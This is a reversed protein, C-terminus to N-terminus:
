SDDLSKSKCNIQIGLEIENVAWRNLHRKLNAKRNPTRDAKNTNKMTSAPSVGAVAARDSGASLSADASETLVM